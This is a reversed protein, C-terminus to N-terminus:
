ADNVKKRKRPPLVPLPAKYKWPPDARWQMVIGEENIWRHSGMHEPCLLEDRAMPGDHMLFIVAKNRCFDGSM